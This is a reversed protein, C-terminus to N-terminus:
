ERGSSSSLSRLLLIGLELVVLVLALASTVGLVWPNSLLRDTWRPRLYVRNEFSHRSVQLVPLRVDSTATAFVRLLPIEISGIEEPQNVELFIRAPLPAGTGDTISVNSAARLVGQRTELGGSRRRSFLFREAFVFEGDFLYEPNDQTAFGGVTVTGFLELPPMTAAYESAIAIKDGRELFIVRDASVRPLDSPGAPESSVNLIEIELLKSTRPRKLSVTTGTGLLLEAGERLQLLDNATDVAAAPLPIGKQLDVTNSIVLTGTRADVFVSREVTFTVALILVAALVLACFSLARGRWRAILRITVYLRTIAPQGTRM